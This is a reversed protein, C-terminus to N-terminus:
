RLEDGRRPHLVHSDAPGTVQTDRPDPDARHCVRRTSRSNGGVRTKLTNNNEQPFRSIKEETYTHTHTPSQKQFVRSQSFRLSLSLLFHRQDHIQGSLHHNRPIISLLIHSYPRSLISTFHSLAIQSKCRSIAGRYSWTVVFQESIRSPERIM